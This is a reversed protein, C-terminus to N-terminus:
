LLESWHFVCCQECVVAVSSVKNGMDVARQWWNSHETQVNARAAAITDQVHKVEGYARCLDSGPAQLKVTLAQLYSMVDAVITFAAIFGFDTISRLLSAAKSTTEANWGDEQGIAELTSVVAIYLERFTVLASHRQVWRTRCLDVLKRKTSNTIDATDMGAIVNELKGQRKPSSNFFMSIELLVGWMNKVAALKSTALNLCHSSCHVDIAKPCEHQILAACGQLRGATNGAGDYGQGRLKTLGLGWERLRNLIIAALAAGTTGENCLAFDLFEERIQRTNSDVFQVIIPM